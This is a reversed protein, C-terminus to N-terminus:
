VGDQVRSCFKRYFLINGLRLFNGIFRQPFTLQSSKNQSPRHVTKNKIKKKLPPPPPTSPEIEPPYRQYASQKRPLPRVKRNVPSSPCVAYIKM